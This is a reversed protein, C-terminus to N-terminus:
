CSRKQKTQFRMLQRAQSVASTLFLKTRRTKVRYKVIVNVKLKILNSICSESLKLKLQQRIGSTDKHGQIDLILTGSLQTFPDLEIVETSGKMVTWM